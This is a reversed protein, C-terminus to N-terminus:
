EEGAEKDTSLVYVTDLKLSAAAEMIDERTVANIREIIEEPPEAYEPFLINSLCRSTIGGVTDSVARIINIIYLKVKETEDDTFNGNVIEDLQHLCESEAAELNKRDVGCETTVFGKAFGLRSYCYYCLSMKERVISFLKSSETGGYLHQMVMLPYKKRYRDSTKFFMVLKSQEIDLTEEIRSVEPKTCSVKTEPLEEPRRDTKSFAEAFMDSIGAFDSEGVCIVETRMENIMRKYANLATEATIAEVRDNTGGWRVEAPEGRFAEEYAKLYSYNTKDNIEADNDDIQNQKEIELSQAPFLGNEFYPRFLCGILIKATERLIDEGDLAFRSDLVSASLECFQYDADARVSWSINASYLEALRRNLKAMTNLDESCKSLMRPLVANESAKESLKTIFIVSIRNIKFKEDTVSTFYVGDAIPKRNYLNDM